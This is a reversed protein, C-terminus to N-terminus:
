GVKRILPLVPPLAEELAMQRLTNSPANRHRIGNAGLKMYWTALPMEGKRRNCSQHVLCVNTLENSGKRSLPNIHDIENAGDLAMTETCWECRGGQKLFLYDYITDPLIGDVGARKARWNIKKIRNAVRRRFESRPKNRNRKRQAM